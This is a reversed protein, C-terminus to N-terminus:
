GLSSYHKEPYYHLQLNHCGCRACEFWEEATKGRQSEPLWRMTVETKCKPCYATSESTSHKASESISNVTAKNTNNTM